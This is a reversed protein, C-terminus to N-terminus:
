LLSDVFKVIKEYQINQDYKAGLEFSSHKMSALLAPSAYFQELHAVFELVDGACYQFGIKNISVVESVEGTLSNIVALGAATYDYIKDPMEVNSNASYACLGIDCRAYVAALSDASLKGLYIVNFAEPAGAAREVEVRYPGDGAILIKIPVDKSKLVRAAELLAPIDYSPGLSGAFIAWVENQLKAPLLSPPVANRMIDRMHQVDIGNYILASPRSALVPAERLPVELYPKALAMVGDLNKYIHRRLLYVPFFLAHGISRLARPLADVILEPWLDMQHFVIPIDRKRAVSYGGIGFNLPSESYIVMDPKPLASGRFHVKLGFVLDRWIRGVGVNKKYGPTPVLRITFQEQVEIDRWGVCRQTKFHHSFSSTWWVVEFGADALKKGMIAFCYARWSESPLTGYPNVLWITKKKM